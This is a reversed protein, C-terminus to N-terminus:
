YGKRAALGPLVDRTLATLAAMPDANAYFIRCVINSVGSASVFASLREGCELPTGVIGLADAVLALDDMTLDAAKDPVRLDPHLERMVTAFVKRPKSINSFAYARMGELAAERTDGMYIPVGHAIALDDLTRGARKAGATVHEYTRDVVEQQVGVMAYVGDAVESAVELMRPSSANVYVAPPTDALHTLKQITADGLVAGDGALLARIALTSERMQAVTASRQSIAITALDGSGLMLRIRGPALEALSNAAAALVAPHRTIPNTVSPFLTVRSTAAAMATLRVFVDHGSGQHDHVGVGDVGAAEAAIAFDSAHAMPVDTHDNVDIRINPL